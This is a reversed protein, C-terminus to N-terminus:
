TTRQDTTAVVLEVVKGPSIPTHLLQTSVLDILLTAHLLFAVEMM